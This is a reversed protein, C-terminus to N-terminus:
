FLTHFKQPITDLSHVNEYYKIVAQDMAEEVLETKSLMDDNKSTILERISVFDTKTYIFVIEKVLEKIVDIHGEGDYIYKSVISNVKLYCEGNLTKLENSLSKAAIRRNAVYHHKNKIEDLYKIIDSSSKMDYIMHFSTEFQSLLGDIIVDSFADSLIKLRVPDILKASYSNINYKITNIFIIGNQITSQDIFHYLITKILTGSSVRRQQEIENSSIVRFSLFKNLLEKDSNFKARCLQQVDSQLYLPSTEVTISQLDKKTLGYNQRASYITVTRRDVIPKIGLKQCWHDIIPKFEIDTNLAQSMSYVDNISQFPEITNVYITYLNEILQTKMDGM